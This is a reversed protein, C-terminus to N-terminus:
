TIESESLAILQNTQYEQIIPQLLIELKGEIVENLRYTTFGIRHDTIRGQPFNYTRIRDSRYGSGLLNRRMCSEEQQRCQAEAARLRASLVAMAKAKNKHQSREDQCEVVLGTPLHTIRIASETTNVHQGGAGSSRFTDVRIDEPSIEPLEAHLIDPIVAVTCSSTHIRGQSETEPIRQVRHGGSEFKLQGYANDHSMKVIIEKYGGHPGSSASIVDIQWSHIEAYRSYMRFLDGAFLAAEDGGTGARVEIFCGREDNPDKNSDKQLLLTLLQQELTSLLSHLKNLEDQVMDHMEPDELMPGTISINEQVQQWHQFCTHIDTLQAYEKSLIRLRERDKAVESNGLLTEVEYYREQLVKLKTIISPKM